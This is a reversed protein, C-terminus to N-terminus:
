KVPKDHEPVERAQQKIYIEEAEVGGTKRESAAGEEAVAESIPQRKIIEIREANNRGRWRM